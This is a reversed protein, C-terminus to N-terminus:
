SYEFVQSDWHFLLSGGIEIGAVMNLESQVAGNLPINAQPNAPLAYTLINSGVSTMLWDGDFAKGTGYAAMQAVSGIPINHPLQTTATVVGGGAATWTFTAVLAPGSSTVAQFLVPNGSLDTLNLYWRQGYVNWVVSANYQTGALIPSFTFTATSSPTFPVLTSM